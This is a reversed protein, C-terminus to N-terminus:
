ASWQYEVGCWVGSCCHGESMMNWVMGGMCLVDWAAGCTGMGGMMHGLVGGANDGLLAESADPVLPEKSACCHCPRVKCLKGFLVPLGHLM